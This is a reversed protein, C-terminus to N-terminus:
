ALSDISVLEGVALDDKMFCSLLTTLGVTAALALAVTSPESAFLGVAAFGTHLTAGLLNGLCSAMLAVLLQRYHGGLTPRSNLM